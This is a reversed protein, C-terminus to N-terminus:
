YEKAKVQLIPNNKGLRTYREQLDSSKIGKTADTDYFELLSKIGGMKKLREVSVGDRINDPEFLPEIYEAKIGSNLDIDLHDSSPRIYKQEITEIAIYNANSERNSM